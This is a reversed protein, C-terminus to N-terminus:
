IGVLFKTDLENSLAFIEDAQDDVTRPKRGLLEKLLPNMFAKEGACYRYTKWLSKDFGGSATM